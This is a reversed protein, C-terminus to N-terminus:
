VVNETVSTFKTNEFIIYEYVEDTILYLDNKEVLSLIQSLYKEDAIEGTPNGPSNIVIAKTKSTIYKEYDEISPLFTSTRSSSVPIPIGGALTIINPHSMWTPDQVLVEDGFNLISCLSLFYAHVGGHTVLIESNPNYNCNNKKLINKSIEERLELIGRSNSYHTLGNAIAKKGAEIVPEPTKFDPDGTHLSIIKKGSSELQRVKDALAITGSQHIKDLQFNLLSSQM